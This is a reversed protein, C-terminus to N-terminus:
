ETEIVLVENDADPIFNKNTGIGEVWLIKNADCLVLIKERKEIPIKLECFLKKLSKTVNRYPLTIEDGSRRTRIYPKGEIKGYNIGNKLGNKNNKCYNLYEDYDMCKGKVFTDFIRTGCFDFDYEKDDKVIAVKSSVELEGSPGIKLFRNGSINIKGGGDKYLKVAEDVTKRDINKQVAKLIKLRIGMEGDTDSLEQVAMDADASLELVHQSAKSNIERLKPIVSHRIKNRTYEQSLNTSDTVYDQNIEKLYEEIEDRTVCLLPRVINGRVPPIGCIGKIGSGRVMNFLVTELNDDCNHATAIVSNDTLHKNFCYYRYERSYEEVSKGQQKSCTVVDKKYCYFDINKQKCFQRCFEEDRDAEAGRYMHNVHVATITIDVLEKLQYLVSLLATSDAGGSFGCVVNKGDLQMNCKTIYDYVKQLM